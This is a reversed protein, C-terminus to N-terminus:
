RTVLDTLNNTVGTNLGTGADGMNKFFVLYLVLTIVILIIAILINAGSPLSGTKSPRLQKCDQM